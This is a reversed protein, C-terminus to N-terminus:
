LCVWAEAGLIGRRSRLLLSTYPNLSHCQYHLLMSVDSSALCGDPGPADVLQLDRQIEETKGRSNTFGVHPSPVDYGPATAASPESPMTPVLREIGQTDAHNIYVTHCVVCEQAFSSGSVSGVSEYVHRALTRKM